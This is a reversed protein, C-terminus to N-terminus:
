NANRLEFSPTPIESNIETVQGNIEQSLSISTKIVENFTLPGIVETADRELITGTYDITAPLNQTQGNGTLKITIELSRTWSEGVGLDDRLIIVDYTPIKISFGNGVPVTIEHAREIYAAGRKAISVPINEAVSTDTMGFYDVGGMTVPMGLSVSSTMSGDDYQWVNNYAMPFYDGTSEGFNEQTEGDDSSSCSVLALVSACIALGALKFKFM